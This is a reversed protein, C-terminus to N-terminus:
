IVARDGKSRYRYRWMIFGTILLILPTLGVFIYLIRTPLGGFTGFHVAGFQNVIAEARSPKMGDNVQIVEGTFQDLYVRTNGHRDTEQAQRKGVTFADEPKNAFSIYTTTADPVVANARRLLEAIALPEQGAIPKSVPDPLKPTLTVAYIAETVKAQPVNWAFGTFSILALFVAAVIGFVKHLDFNLRKIHGDWKIKFGAALKRWGPWLVIGSISLILTLLAVIGMVLLGIDGALLEYHLEYIRGVWSTEWQRDGMIQGSYPNLFVQLSHDAADQLWADYPHDAHDPFGLSSLTLNKTTYTTKLTNAIAPISVKTGTPIVTGFRQTLLWHDIEHWFVLISGTVGAICLLIGATLGLWRHTHFAIARAKARNFRNPQKPSQVQTSSPTSSM